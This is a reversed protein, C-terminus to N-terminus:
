RKPVPPPRQNAIPRRNVQSFLRSAETRDAAELKVLLMKVHFKPPNESLGPAVGIDRNSLRAM